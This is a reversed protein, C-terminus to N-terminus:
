KSALKKAEKRAKARESKTRRPLSKNSALRRDSSADRVKGGEVNGATHKVPQHPDFGQCVHCLANPTEHYGDSHENEFGAEEWCLSCLCDSQTRDIKREGCCICTTSLAPRKTM